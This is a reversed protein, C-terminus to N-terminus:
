FPVTSSTWRPSTGAGADPAGLTGDLHNPSADHVVSGTGENFPYYAILTPDTVPSCGGAMDAAIQQSTRVASFIRVEDISGKFGLAFSTPGGDTDSGILLPNGDYSPSGQHNTQSAVLSGDIFIQQLGTSGEFTTAIHHWTGTTGGPWGLSLAGSTSPVNLGWFLEGQFWVAFSDDSGTGFPKCVICNFSTDLV